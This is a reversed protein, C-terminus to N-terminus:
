TFKGITESSKEGCDLITRHLGIGPGDSSEFPGRGGDLGECLPLIRSQLIGIRVNQYM